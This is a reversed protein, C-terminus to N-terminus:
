EKENTENAADGAEAMSKPAWWVNVGNHPFMPEDIILEFMTDSNKTPTKVAGCHMGDAGPLLSEPHIVRLHFGDTPDTVRWTMEDRAFKVFQYDLSVDAYTNKKMPIDFSFNKFYKSDPNNEDISKTDSVKIGDIRVAKLDVLHRYKQLYPFEIFSSHKFTENKPSKNIIRFSLTVEVLIPIESSIENKEEIYSLRVVVSYRKRFFNNRFVNHEVFRVYEEEQKRKYISSFVDNKIEDIQAEVHRNHSERALKEIGITVFFAILFAFGVEKLFSSLYSSDPMALCYGHEKLGVGIFILLLGFVFLIVPTTHIIELLGYKVSLGHDAEIDEVDPRSGSDNKSRQKTKSYRLFVLAVALAAICATLVITWTQDVSILEGCVIVANEKAM